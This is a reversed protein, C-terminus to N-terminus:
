TDELAEIKPQGKIIQM